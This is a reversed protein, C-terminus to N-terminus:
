SVNLLAKLDEIPKLLKERVYAESCAEWKPEYDALSSIIEDLMHSNDLLPKLTKEYLDLRSQLSQITNPVIGAEFEHANNRIESSLSNISHIVSRLPLGCHKCKQM